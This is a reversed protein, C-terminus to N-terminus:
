CTARFINVEESSSSPRKDDEGNSIVVRNASPAASLAETIVLKFKLLDKQNESPIKNETVYRIYQSWLNVVALELFSCFSKGHGNDPKLGHEM